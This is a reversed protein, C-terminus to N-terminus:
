MGGSSASGADESAITEFVLKLIPEQGTGVGEWDLSTFTTTTAKQTGSLTGSQFYKIEEVHKRVDSGKKEFTGMVASGSVATIPVYRLSVEYSLVNSTSRTVIIKSYSLANVWEGDDSISGHVQITTDQGPGTKELKGSFIPGMWVVPVSPVGLSTPYTVPTGDFDLQMMGYLSAKLFRAQQLSGLGPGTTGSTSAPAAPQCALLAVAAAVATAFSLFRRYLSMTKLM